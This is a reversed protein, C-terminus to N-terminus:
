IVFISVNRDALIRIDNIKGYRKVDLMKDSSGTHHRPCIKGRRVVRGSATLPFVAHVFNVNLERQMGHSDYM